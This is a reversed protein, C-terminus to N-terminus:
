AAARINATGAEACPLWITMRTGEGPATVIGIRGGMASVIARAEYAGVGFGGSKTSAFPRFLSGRVFDVSMGPGKDAVEIGAEAGRRVTTLTVPEAPPSADIANQILHSLAQELRAPDALAFADTDGAVVVPHRKRFGAGLTNAVPKLKVIRPEETKGTNHQSLRALLDNMRATSAQLTAIMDARFEPKDAHREANRTVLTLQSVLNKIDHMIFAFRRNFEDFRAADSLAEQANAEALYSAVQRGALRLLDFDEWDLARAVLPRELLVAGVLRDFHVLPIIAWASPDSLIWEPIADAEAADGHGRRLPALEVIRGTALRRVLDASGSELPPQSGDWGWRAGSTFGDHAPYLLLGGPAKVIDAVAKVVRMELAAAGPGPVGLTDTFRLWEARYDYRHAFLHKTLMVNVWARTEPSSMVLSFAVAAALLVIPPIARAWPGGLSQLAYASLIVAGLYALAAVLGISRFAVTRSLRITWGTNRRAGLAVLPALIAVTIGRAIAFEMVWAGQAWCLAYFTLDMGWLAGLAALPLGVGARAGAATATYLNHVAVLAGVAFVMRLAFSSLLSTLTPAAPMPDLLALVDIAVAAGAAFGLVAYLARLSRYETGGRRLLAFLFSLWALNRISETVQSAPADVGLTSTAAAWIATLACALIVARAARDRWRGLQWAAVAMFLLAALAHSWELALRTM